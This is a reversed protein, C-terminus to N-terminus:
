PIDGLHKVPAAKVESELHTVVPEVIQALDWGFFYFRTLSARFATMLVVFCQIDWNM